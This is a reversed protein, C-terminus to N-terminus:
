FNGLPYSHIVIGHRFCQLAARAETCWNITGQKVLEQPDQFFLIIIMNM